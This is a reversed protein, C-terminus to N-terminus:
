QPPNVPQLQISGKPSEQWLFAPWPEGKEGELYIIPSTSETVSRDAVGLFDALLQSVPVPEDQVNAVYRPSRVAFLTSFADRLDPTALQALSNSRPGTEYIRSGHDGHLIIETDAWRGEAKLESFLSGLERLTCRVQTFYQEYRLERGSPTNVKEYRPHSELWRFPNGRLNCEEDYVYPGHPLAIHAFHATGSPAGIVAQRLHRLASMGAISALSGDWAFNSPLSIGIEGVSNRLRVYSKGVSEFFGPLNLYMGLLVSLRQVDNLDSSRLWDTGDHRYTFCSEVPIPSDICFDMYTSQYVYVKYGRARLVEFYTNEKLVFPRKGRFNKEPRVSSEFNLIGSISSRTAAYESIAFPHLIFGESLLFDAIESRLHRGGPIEEPIGQIGAFGDLILHIMMGSAISSGDDTRNTLTENDRYPENPSGIISVLLVVSFTGVLISTLHERILWFLAAVTISGAYAVLGDFWRLQLDLFLCVILTFLAVRRLGSDRGMITALALAAGAFLVVSWLLANASLVNSRFSSFFFFPAWLILFSAAVRASFDKAGDSVRFANM